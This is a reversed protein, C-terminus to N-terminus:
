MIRFQLPNYFYLSQKGIFPHSYKPLIKPTKKAKATNYYYYTFFTPVHFLLTLHLSTIFLLTYFIIKHM